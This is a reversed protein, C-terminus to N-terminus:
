VEIVVQISDDRLRELLNIGLFLQPAPIIPHIQGSELLLLGPLHQKPPNPHKLTLLDHIEKM